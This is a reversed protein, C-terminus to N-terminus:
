PWFYEDEDEWEREEESDDELQDACHDCIGSREFSDIGANFSGCCPCYGHAAAHERCFWEEIDPDDPGTIRPWGQMVCLRGASRCGEHQCFPVWGQKICAGCEYGDYDIPEGGPTSTGVFPPDIYGTTHCVMCPLRSRILAALQEDREQVVDAYALRITDDEPHDLVAARMLEEDSKM